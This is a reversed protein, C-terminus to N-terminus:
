SILALDICLVSGVWFVHALGVRCCSSSIFLDTKFIALDHLSFQHAAQHTSYIYTYVGITNITQGAHHPPGEGRRLQSGADGGEDPPREGRRPGDGPLVVVCCFLAAGFYLPIWIAISRNISCSVFALSCDISRYLSQDFAPSSLPDAIIMEPLFIHRGVLIHSCWSNITVCFLPM